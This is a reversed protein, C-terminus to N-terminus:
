NEILWKEYELGKEFPDELLVYHRIDKLCVEKREKENKVKEKLERFGQEFTELVFRDEFSFGVFVIGERRCFVGKLIKELDSAEGGNSVQYFKFYDCTM